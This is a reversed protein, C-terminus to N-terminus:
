KTTISSPYKGSKEFYIQILDIGEPTLVKQLAKYILDSVKKGKKIKQYDKRALFDDFLWVANKVLLSLVDSNVIRKKSLMEGLPIGTLESLKILKSKTYLSFESPFAEHKMSNCSKCLSTATVGLPWLYALPFTHDIDMDSPKLLPKNCAFCARGFKEWIFDQFEVGHNTRFNKVVDQNTLEIIMREFSRRRSGDEHHQAKNRLPNLPANVEFKKCSRCELQFGFHVPLISGNKVTVVRSKIKEPLLSIDESNEILYKSFANHSCPARKKCHNSFGLPNLENEVDIPLMRACRNCSKGILFGDSSKEGGKIIPTKSPLYYIEPEYLDTKEYFINKYSPKNVYHDLPGSQFDFIEILPDGVKSLFNLKVEARFNENEDSPNIELYLGIRTWNNKPVISVKNESMEVGESNKLQITSTVLLENNSRVYLGAGYMFIKESFLNQFSVSSDTFSLSLEKGIVKFGETKHIICESGTKGGNVKFGSKQRVSRRKPQLFSQILKPADGEDTVGIKDTKTIAM